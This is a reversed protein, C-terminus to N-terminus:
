QRTFISPNTGCANAPPSENTIKYWWLRLVTSEVNWRVIRIQSFLHGSTIGRWKALCADDKSWWRESVLLTLLHGLPMVRSYVWLLITKKANETQEKSLENLYKGNSILFVSIYLIQKSVGLMAIGQLLEWSLRSYRNPEGPLELSDPNIEQRYLFVQWWLRKLPLVM